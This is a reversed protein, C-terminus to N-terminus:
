QGGEGKARLDAIMKDLFEETLDEHYAQDDLQLMPAGPCAALCEAELLTILGDKTTGGLKIGLKKELYAVLKQAGCLECSISTCIRIVHKGVPERHFMTYFSAVEYVDVSPLELYDAVADLVPDSLWGHDDQAFRLAMIVASRKKEAPFKAAWADIKKRVAPPLTYASLQNATAM